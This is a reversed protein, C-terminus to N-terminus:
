SMFQIQNSKSRRGPRMIPLRQRQEAQTSAWALKALKREHVKRHKTLHDSRSFCKTCYNCKYPKVGSHSRRHRSLEDSRSFKWTCNPWTCVYPKDGIHRRLHAKLHAPKAYVKQCNTYTCIFYKDADNSHLSHEPSSMQHVDIQHNQQHISSFREHNVMPEDNYQLVELPTEQVTTTTTPFNQLNLSATSEKLFVNCSDNCFFTKDPLEVRQQWDPYELGNELLLNEINIEWDENFDIPRLETSSQWYTNNVNNENNNNDVDSTAYNTNYIWKPEETNNNINNNTATTTATFIAATFEFRGSNKSQLEDSPTVSRNSSSNSESASVSCNINWLWKEDECDEATYLQYFGNSLFDDSYSNFNEM